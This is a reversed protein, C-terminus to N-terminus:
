PGEGQAELRSSLAPGGLAHALVADRQAILYFHGGPFVHLTM